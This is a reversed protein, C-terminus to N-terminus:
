GPTPTLTAAYPTRDIASRPGLVITVRSLDVAGNVFFGIATTGELINGNADKEYGVQVHALDLTAGNADTVIPQGNDPHWNGRIVLGVWPRDGYTGQEGHTLLNQPGDLVVEAPLKFTESKGVRLLLEKLNLAFGTTEQNDAVAIAGLRLVVPQGFATPAFAAVAHGNEVSFSRPTLRNGGVDLLPQSLMLVGAPLSVSIRTESRSRVGAITATGGKVVLESSALSEVRMQSAADAVAPGKLPLIWEGGLVGFGHDLQVSLESIQLKVTGDYTDTTQLPPLHVLLEGLQNATSTMPSGDFPGSYGAGSPVVRRVPGGAGIRDLIAEEDKVTLRLRLITETGSYSAGLAEITVGQGTASASQKIEDFPAASPPPSSQNLVLAGAVGLALAAVLVAMWVVAPRWLRSQVVSLPQQTM